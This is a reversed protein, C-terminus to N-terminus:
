RGEERDSRRLANGRALLAEDLEEIAGRLELALYEDFVASPQAGTTFQVMETQQNIKRALTIIERSVKKAQADAQWYPSLGQTLFEPKLGRARASM